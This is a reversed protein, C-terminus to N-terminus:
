VPQRAVAAQRGAVTLENEGLAAARGQLRDRLLFAEAVFRDFAQVVRQGLLLVFAGRGRGNTPKTNILERELFAVLLKRQGEGVQFRAANEGDQGVALFFRKRRMQRRPRLLLAVCRADHVCSCRSAM